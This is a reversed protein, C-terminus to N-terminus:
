DKIEIAILEAESFRGEAILKDVRAQKIKKQTVSLGSESTSSATTTNNLVPSATVNVDGTKVSNNNTNHNNNLINIVPSGGIGSWVYTPDHTMSYAFVMNCCVTQRFRHRQDGQM